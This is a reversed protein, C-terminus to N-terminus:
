QGLSMNCSWNKKAKKNLRVMPMEYLKVKRKTQMKITEKLRTKIFRTGIEIKKNRHKGHQHKIM